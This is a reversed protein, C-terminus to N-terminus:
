YEPNIGLVDQLIIQIAPNGTTFKYELLGGPNNGIEDASKIIMGGIDYIKGISIFRGMNIEDPLGAASRFDDVATPNVPTWSAGWPGSFINEPQNPDGGWVRYVTIGVLRAMIGACTTSALCATSAADGAAAAGQWGVYAGGVLVVGHMEVWIVDYSCAGLRDGFGAQSTCISWASGANTWGQMYCSSLNQVCHGIPDDGKNHAPPTPDSGCNYGDEECNRHGTPDTANIPDNNVYAYRDYGQVGDPVVTDASTFRGLAPDYFRAQYFMLGFGETVGSTTPDDM